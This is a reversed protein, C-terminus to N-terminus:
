VPYFKDEEWKSVNNRIYNSINIYSKEDRIINDYFRAQWAFDVRNKRSEFSVRGKYWRVIRSLNDNVMPNKDGAFGGTKGTTIRNIDSGCGSVGDDGPDGDTKDIIIIGHVHNPMVVFEGLTVFPFYKPIEHWFQNAIKGTESLIIKHIPIISVRNIADRRQMVMINGFFPERGQTCVTILYAADNGYDWWQARASSIRYRDQFKDSM